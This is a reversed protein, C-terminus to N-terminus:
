GGWYAKTGSGEKKMGSGEKKAAFTVSSVMFLAILLVSMAALGIIPKNSHRLKM